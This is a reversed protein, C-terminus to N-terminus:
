IQVSIGSVSDSAMNVSKVLGTLWFFCVRRIAVHTDNRAAADTDEGAWCLTFPSVLLCHFKLESKRRTENDEIMTWDYAKGLDSLLFVLAQESWVSASLHIFQIIPESDTLLM